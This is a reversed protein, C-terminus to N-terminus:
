PNRKRARGPRAANQKTREREEQFDTRTQHWHYAIPSFNKGCSTCHTLKLRPELFNERWEQRKFEDCPECYPPEGNFTKECNRCTPM